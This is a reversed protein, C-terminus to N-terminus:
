NRHWMKKGGMRRGGSGVWGLYSSILQLVTTNTMKNIKVRLYYIYFLIGSDDFRLNTTLRQRTIGHFSLSRRRQEVLKRSHRIELTENNIRAEQCLRSSRHRTRSRFEDGHHFPISRFPTRNREVTSVVSSVPIVMSMM